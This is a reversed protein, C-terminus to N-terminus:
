NRRLSINQMQKLMELVLTVNLDNTDNRTYLFDLSYGVNLSNMLLTMM